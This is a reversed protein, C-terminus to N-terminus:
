YKPIQRTKEITRRVNEINQITKFARNARALAEAQDEQLGEKFKEERSTTNIASDSGGAVGGEVSVAGEGTGIASDSGGRNPNPKERPLHFAALWARRSLGEPSTLRSSCRM